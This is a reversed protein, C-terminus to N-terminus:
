MRQFIILAKETAFTNYFNFFGATTKGCARAVSKISDYIYLKEGTKPLVVIFV